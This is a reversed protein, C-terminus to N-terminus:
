EGGVWVFRAEKVVPSQKNVDARSLEFALTIKEYGFKTFVFESDVAVWATPSQFELSFYNINSLSPSGYRTFESLKFTYPIWVNAAELTFTKEFYNANDTHLRVKATCTADALIWLTMEKFGSLNWGANKTKPYIMRFPSSSAVAKVSKNGFLKTDFDSLTANEADWESSDETWLGRADPLYPIEYTGPPDITIPEIYGDSVRKLWVDGVKTLTAGYITGHNNYGSYDYAIGKSSENFKLWLVLGDKIPMYPHEYNWKIEADTLARNYILVNYLIMYAYPAGWISCGIRLNTTNGSSEPVDTMSAALVGNKYGKLVSGDLVMAYENLEGLSHPVNISYLKNNAHIRMRMGLADFEWNYNATREIRKDIVVGSSYGSQWGLPKLRMIITIKNGPQINLLDNHPIIIRDDVGDFSLAFIDVNGERKDFDAGVRLWRRFLMAAPTCSVEFSGFTADPPLTAYGDSDLTVNQANELELPPYNILRYVTVSTPAREKEASPTPPEIRATKSLTDALSELYDKHVYEPNVLSLRSLFVRGSFDHEVSEILYYGDVGLWEIKVYAYDGAEFEANGEAIIDLIIPTVKLQQLKQKAIREADQANTITLDYITLPRDGDGEQAVAEIRQGNEDWGGVVIIKNRRLYDKESKSAKIVNKTDLLEHVKVAYVDDIRGIGQGVCRASVKVQAANSPAVANVVIERYEPTLALTQSDTSIESGGSTLWTIVLKGTNTGKMWASFRYRKGAEIDITQEVGGEDSANVCDVKVCRSGSRADYTDYAVSPSGAYQKLTWGADSEFSPNTLLNNGFGRPKFVLVKSPTVRIICGAKEALELCARLGSQHKFNPSLILGTPEIGTTSLGASEAISKVIESVETPPYQENVEVKDLLMLYSVAKCAIKRARLEVSPKYETIFGAFKLINDIYLEVDRGTQFLPILSEDGEVSLLFSLEEAERGWKKLEPKATKLSVDQWSGDAKKIRLSLAPFSM